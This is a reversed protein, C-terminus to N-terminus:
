HLQAKGEINIVGEKVLQRDIFGSIFTRKPDKTDVKKGSRDLSQLDELSLWERKIKRVIL